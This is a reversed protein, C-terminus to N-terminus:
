IDKIGLSKKIVDSVSKSTINKKKCYNSKLWESLEKSGKSSNCSACCLAINSINIINEDNIIHEWTAKNKFDNKDFVVGCYVCNNDRKIIEIELWNPINRNNM